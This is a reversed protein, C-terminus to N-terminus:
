PLDVQEGASLPRVIADPGPTMISERGDDFRVRYPPAGGQGLVEIIEGRRDRRGVIRGFVLLGDGVSARM